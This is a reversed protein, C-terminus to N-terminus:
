LGNALLTSAPRSTHQEIHIYDSARVNIHAMARLLTWSLGAVLLALTLLELVALFTHRARHHRPNANMTVHELEPQTPWPSQRVDCFM